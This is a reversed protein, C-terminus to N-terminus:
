SGIRKLREPAAPGGWRFEEGFWEDSRQKAFVGKKEPISENMKSSAASSPNGREWSLATRILNRHSLIFIGRRGEM